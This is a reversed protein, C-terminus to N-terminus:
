WEMLVGHGYTMWWGGCWLIKAVSLMLCFVNRERQVVERRHGFKELPQVTVNQTHNKVEGIIKCLLFMYLWTSNCHCHLESIYESLCRTEPVTFRRCETYSSYLRCTMHWENWIWVVICFYHKMLYSHTNQGWCHANSWSCLSHILNYKSSSLVAVLVLWIYFCAKLISLILLVGVDTQNEFNVIPTVDTLLEICRICRSCRGM